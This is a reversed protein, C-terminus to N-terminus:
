PKWRLHSVPSSESCSIFLQWVTPFHGTRLELEMKQTNLLLSLIRSATCQAGKKMNTSTQPKHLLVQLSMSKSSSPFSPPLVFPLWTNLLMELILESLKTWKGWKMGMKPLFKARMQWTSHGHRCGLCSHIIPTSACPANLVASLM